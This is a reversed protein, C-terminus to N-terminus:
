RSPPPPRAPCSASRTASPGRPRRSRRLLRRSSRRCARPRAWRGEESGWARGFGQALASLREARAAVGRPISGERSLERLTDDGLERLRWNSISRGFFSTAASELKHAEDFIVDDCDPLVAGFQSARVVSDALYLHHNVVLVDALQAAGRVAQLHCEAHEPCRQGLCTANSANVHRWFSPSEPLDALEGMEGLETSRAWSEVQPWLAAESSDGFLPSQRFAAYRLKCLYNDRGKLVSFAFKLGCADRLFPLDKLALQDQLAKTGTSVIVRRRLLIAPVLYAMTKGIGTGAEVVLHAGDQLAALVQLAMEVQAPREESAAHARFLAGGPAFFARVRDALRTDAPM